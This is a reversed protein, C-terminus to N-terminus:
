IVRNGRIHNKHGSNKFILNVNGRLALDNTWLLYNLRQTVPPCLHNLAMSFEFGYLDKLIVKTLNLLANPNKFDVHGRGNKDINVFKSFFKYKKALQVFNPPSNKFPHKPHLKQSGLTVDFEIKENVSSVTEDNLKRKKRAPEEFIFNFNYSARTRLLEM